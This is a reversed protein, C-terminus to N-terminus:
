PQAVSFYTLLVFESARVLVYRLNLWWMDTRTNAQKPASHKIAFGHGSSGNIRHVNDKESGQSNQTRLDRVETSSM